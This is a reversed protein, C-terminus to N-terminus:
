SQVAVPTHANLVAQGAAVGADIARLNAEVHQVRYPPLLERMAIGLAEASVVERLTIYAGLMVFGAAQPAGMEAAIQTVPVAAIRAPISIVAPDVISSNLILLGDPILRELAFESHKHHMLIAASTRPLIPLARLPEDGVIVSAQSPGGRMEGGYEAALMAFQGSRTAALALTKCMLQIGQGGIGTVIVEREV